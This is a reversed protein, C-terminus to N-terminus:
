NVRSYRAILDRPSKDVAWHSFPKPPTAVRHPGRDMMLPRPTAVRATSACCPSREPFSAKFQGARRYTLDCSMEVLARGLRRKGTRNADREKRSHTDFNAGPSEDNRTTLWAEDASARACNFMKRQWSGPTYPVRSWGWNDFIAPLTRPKKREKKKKVLNSSSANDNFLLSFKFDRSPFNAFDKHFKIYVYHLSFAKPFSQTLRTHILHLDQPFKTYAKHPGRTFQICAKRLKRALRAYVNQLLNVNFKCQYAPTYVQTPFKCLIM